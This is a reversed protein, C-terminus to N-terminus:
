AAKDGDRGATPRGASVRADAWAEDLVRALTEGLTRVHPEFLMDIHTGPVEHLQLGGRALAQWRAPLDSLRQRNRAVKFLTVCGRYPRPVYDRRANRNAQYVNRLARPLWGGRRQWLVIMRWLPAAAVQRVTRVKQGVIALRGPEYLLTRVYTPVRSALRLLSTGSGQACAGSTHTDFLALLAVAQGDQELQRAMEFAVKGGFSWGCIAYPGRPHSKRIEAVYDRAMDEIRTNIRSVGDLGRSQLGYMPQDSPLHRALDRYCLVHGDAIHVCFLPPKSGSARIPVLSPWPANTRHNRILEAQEEITAAAILASLPLKADFAREISVSLRAALLSHGGLEFFNVSVGIPCRELLEEWLHMLCTEVIDSPPRDVARVGSPTVRPAPLTTRMV